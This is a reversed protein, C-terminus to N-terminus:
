SRTAPDQDLRELAPRRRGPHPRARRATRGAAPRPRHGRGRRGPVPQPGRRDPRTPEPAGPEARAALLALLEGPPVPLEPEPLAEAAARLEAVQGAVGDTRRLPTLKREGTAALTLAVTRPAARWPSGAPRWCCTWAPATPATADLYGVWGTVAARTRRHERPRRRRAPDRDHGGPRGCTPHQEAEDAAPLLALAEEVRGLRALARARLM